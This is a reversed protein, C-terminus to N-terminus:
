FDRGEPLGADSRFSGSVPKAYGRRNHGMMADMWFKIEKETTEILTQLKQLPSEEKSGGSGSGDSSGNSISFDGLKVSGSLESILGVSGEDDDSGNLIQIMLSTMLMRAAEYAVFKQTPFLTADNARLERYRSHNADAIQGKLQLAKQGADRIASYIDHQKFYKSIGKLISVVELPDSLLPKYESTFTLTSKSSLSHGSVSKIGRGVVVRYTHNYLSPSDLTVILKNGDVKISSPLQYDSEFDNYDIDEEAEEDDSIPEEAEIITFTDSTSYAVGDITVHYTIRYEGPNWDEPISYVKTFIFADETADLTVSDLKITGHESVHEIEAVPPFDAINSDNGEGKTLLELLIKSDKQFEGIYTM